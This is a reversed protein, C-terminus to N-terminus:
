RRRRREPVARGGWPRSPAKSRVTGTGRRTSSNHHRTATAAGTVSTPVTLGGRPSRRWPPRAAPASRVRPSNPPCHWRRPRTSGLVRVPQGHLWAEADRGGDSVKPAKLPQRLCRRPPTRVGLRLQLAPRLRRVPITQRDIANTTIAYRITRKPSHTKRPSLARGALRTAAALSRKPPLLPDTPWWGGPWRM